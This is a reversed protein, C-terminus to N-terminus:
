VMGPILRIKYSESSDPVILDAPFPVYQSDDPIIWIHEDANENVGVKVFLVVRFGDPATVAVGNLYESCQASNNTYEFLYEGPIDPNPKLKWHDQNEKKSCDLAIQALDVHDMDQGLANAVSLVWFLVVALFCGLGFMIMKRVM